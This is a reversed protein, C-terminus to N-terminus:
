IDAQELSSASPGGLEIEPFGSNGEREIWGLSQLAGQQRRLFFFFLASITVASQDHEQFSTNACVHTVTHRLLHLM